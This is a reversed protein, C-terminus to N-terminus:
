FDGEALIRPNESECIRFKGATGAAELTAAIFRASNQIRALCFSWYGGGEGRAIRKRVEIKLGIVCHANAAGRDPGGIGRTTTASKSLLSFIRRVSPVLRGLRAGVRWKASANRRAGRVHVGSRRRRTRRPADGGCRRDGLPRQRRRFSVKPRERVGLSLRRIRWAPLQPM